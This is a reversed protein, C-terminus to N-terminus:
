KILVFKGRGVRRVYPRYGGPNGERHKYLWANYTGHGWGPCAVRFDAASFPESLNGSAVAKRLSEVISM